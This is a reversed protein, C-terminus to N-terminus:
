LDSSVLIAVSSQCPAINYNYCYLSWPHKRDTPICVCRCAYAIKANEFPAPKQLVYLSQLACGDSAAKATALIPLWSAKVVQHSGM